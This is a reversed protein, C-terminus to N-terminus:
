SATATPAPSSRRKQRRLAHHGMWREGELRTLLAQPTGLLALAVSDQTHVLSWSTPILLCRRERLEGILSPEVRGLVAAAGHSDAHWFLQDLVSGVQGTPAAVQLVQAVGRNLLYYVYWGIIRGGGDRVLHRVPVGRFDLVELESFLWRVYEPDYDPHLRLRRGANRVQAVLDEPTLPEAVTTPRPPLFGAFRGALLRVGADHAPGVFEVSQGLRPHGSRRALHAVVGSPRLIKAWGTSASTLTQGGLGTWIRRMYDTASDNITIDQPGALYRRTLLAGAGRHRQEPAAVLHGSCALRLPRGDLRMRRVHSGIFGVIEGDSDEYV